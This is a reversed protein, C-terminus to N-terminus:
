APDVNLVPSVSIGNLIYQIGALADIKGYPGFNKKATYTDQIASHAFVQRIDATNLSKNAYKAAELYLAIIGAACPTAM